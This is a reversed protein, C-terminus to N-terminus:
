FRRVGAEGGYEGLSIVDFAAGAFVRIVRLPDGFRDHHSCVDVPGHRRASPGIGPRPHHDVDEAALGAVEDLDPDDVLLDALGCVFCRGSGVARRVVIRRGSPSHGLGAVALSGFL